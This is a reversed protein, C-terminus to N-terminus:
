KELVALGIRIKSYSLEENLFTYYDKLGIPNEIEKKAKKVKSLEEDTIFDSLNLKFGMEYMKLLHGLITTKALNRQEAIQDISYGQEYLEYSTKYTGGKERKKKEKKKKPNVTVLVKKIEINNEEVYKKIESIFAEGYTDAKKQGVGSVELFESITLPLKKQMDRLAADGFVLYPAINKENAIKRRLTRLNEYLAAHESSDVIVEVQKTKKKNFDQLSTLSVKTGQFLVNKGLPTVKIHNSEHFAVECFGLNILQIMYQQLDKWALEQAVGYTKLNQYNKELINQNRSGKLFDIVVNLPEKEQLRMIGSLIKQALITGDFFTPPNKCVDCNGCDKIIHEGFYNLLIKRRCSLADAYQKMREIKSLQVEANNSDQAFNQLQIVDGYSHFLITESDLGDRGARGIEQYYGEINKPLNYHIVWRVNSKDIGMGFAVTACIVDTNDQIFNEQVKERSEHDMGAHYSAANIGVNQLKSAISETTKRSLCYIIGSQNPREQIFKVIQKIRDNAPRVELSLNPRDFSSIFKSANPIDLQKLIDERTAKDATATLAILAANPFAKKLYNLSTYAPRFDHGWASICHAEDIAILSIELTKLFNDFMSLSEPAIYLIKLEKKEALHFVEAQDEQSQSSNLFAATIGNANLGDVQDKMLAILPSIVITIGPLLTSPLQYCISKGGGTPMIVLSDNKAFINKIIDYQLPRFEDYGFYKKLANYIERKQIM